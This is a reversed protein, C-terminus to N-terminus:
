LEQVTQADTSQKQYEAVQRCMEVFEQQSMTNKARNVSKLVLQSNAATFEGGEAVPIIHDLAFNSPTLQEGTLACRVGQRRLLEKLDNLSLVERGLVRRKRPRHNFRSGILWGTYAVLNIRNPASQIWPARQRHRYFQRDNIVPGLPTSNLLRVVESPRLSSLRSSEESEDAMRKTEAETRLGLEGQQPSAQGATSSRSDSEQLGSEMGTISQQRRQDSPSNNRQNAERSDAASHLLVRTSPAVSRNADPTPLDAIVCEAVGGAIRDGVGTEDGHM